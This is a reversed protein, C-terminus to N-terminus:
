KKRCVAVLSLGPLRVCIKNLIKNLYFDFNLLSKFFITMPHKESYKWNNSDGSYKKKRLSGLLRLVFLSTYFYHCYEVKINDQQLVTLLQNRNYRRLHLAKKDHASFLFQFAPVTVLVTGDPKLKNVADKFFSVDDEIHELVDMMTICDIENDSLDNIYKLCKIGDETTYDQSFALDVAFVEGPAVKRIKKTLFMDASGIDAINRPNLKKIVGLICESRSQYWPHQNRGGDDVFPNLVGNIMNQAEAM